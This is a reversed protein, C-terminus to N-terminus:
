GLEIKGPSIFLRIRSVRGNNTCICELDDAPTSDFVEWEAHEIDIKLIAEPRRGSLDTTEVIHSLSESDSGSVSAIRKKEWRILPHILPPREITHDYQHVMIGRQAIDCDWDANHEVGFSLATRIRDFDDLLIYGGDNASGVRIKDFGKAQM